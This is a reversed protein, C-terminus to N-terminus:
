EDAGIECSDGCSGGVDLEPDNRPNNDVFPEFIETMSKGVILAATKRGRFFVRPGVGAGAMAYNNEMRHMFEFLRHDEQALTLLKRDSKKWCTVCNGYHERLRLDFSQKAWWDIIYKKDMGLKVLPYIYGLVDAKSDMRDFEDARIGIATNYDGHNWGISRLYSTMPRLKTERTCHPFNSNPIGFKKITEEFPQGKRSASLYDVVRHTTGEGLEPHVVAEVWTLNLKFERDCRDVFKLTEEHELGTNAFLTQITHTSSYLDLLLKSLFGSTRGGSFSIFLKNRTLM